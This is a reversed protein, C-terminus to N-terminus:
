LHTSFWWKLQPFIKELDSNKCLFDDPCVIYLSVFSRRASASAPSLTGASFLRFLSFSHPFFFFSISLFFSVLPCLLCFRFNERFCLGTDCSSFGVFVIPVFFIKPAPITHRSAPLSCCRVVCWWVPSTRHVFDRMLANCCALYVPHEAVSLFSNKSVFFRRLFSFVNRTNGDSLVNLSNFTSSNELRSLKRM